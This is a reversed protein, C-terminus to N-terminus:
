DEEGFFDVALEPTEHLRVRHLRRSEGNVRPALRKWIDRAVNEATPIVRDFPPVEHNLFRHDYVGVVEEEIIRKLEKLDMIMGHVPHVEGRVSVEVVYNHGHGNPRAEAGFLKENDAPSLEADACFHSACFEAKRTIVVMQPKVRRRSCQLFLRM